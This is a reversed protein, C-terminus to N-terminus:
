FKIRDFSFQKELIIAKHLDLTNCFAGLPLMRLSEAISKFQMLRYNIKLVKTKDIKSHSGLVPKVTNVIKKDQM